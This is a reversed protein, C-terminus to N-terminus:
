QLFMVDIPVAFRRRPPLYPQDLLLFSNLICFVSGLLADCAASLSLRQVMTYEGPIIGRLDVAVLKAVLSSSVLLALHLSIAEFAALFHVSM